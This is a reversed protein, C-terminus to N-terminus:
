KLEELEALIKEEESTDAGSMKKGRMRESFVSIFREVTGTLLEGGREINKKGLLLEVDSYEYTKGTYEACIVQYIKKEESVFIEDVIDYGNEALFKRM